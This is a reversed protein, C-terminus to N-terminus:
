SPHGRIACSFTELWLISELDLYNTPEDLLLLDPAALLIQALAVRMKLRVSLTGRRQADQSTSLGLGHLITSARAELEYGRPGPIARRVEGFRAVRRRSEDGAAELRAGLMALEEGLQSVEGAGACTEAPDLPRPARRRGAPLLRADAEPAAGIAGDDPQDDGTILRFVTTKGAGNPRGGDV